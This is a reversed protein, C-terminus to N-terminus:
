AASHAVWVVAKWGATSVATKVVLLAAWDVVKPDVSCDVLGVAWNVAM